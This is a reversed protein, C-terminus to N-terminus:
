PAQGAGDAILGGRTRSLVVKLDRTRFSRHFSIVTLGLITDVPVPKCYLRIVTPLLYVQRFQRERLLLGTRDFAKRRRPRNERSRRTLTLRDCLLSTTHVVVGAHSQAVIAFHCVYSATQWTQVLQRLGSESSSFFTPPTSQSGTPSKM